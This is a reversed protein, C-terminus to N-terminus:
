KFRSPQTGQDRSHGRYSSGCQYSWRQSLDDPIEDNPFYYQKYSNKEGTIELIEEVVKRDVKSKYLPNPIQIVCFPFHHRSELTPGCWPEARDRFHGYIITMGFFLFGLERHIWRNWKRWNMSSIPTIEKFDVAEIFCIPKKLKQIHWKQPTINKPNMTRWM